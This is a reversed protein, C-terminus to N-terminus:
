GRMTQGYGPRLGPAPDLVSPLLARLRHAATSTALPMLFIRPIGSVLGAEGVLAEVYRPLAPNADPGELLRRLHQITGWGYAWGRFPPM